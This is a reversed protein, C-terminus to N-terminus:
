DPLSSRLSSQLRSSIMARYLWSAIAQLLSPPVLQRMEGPEEFTVAGMPPRETRSAPLWCSSATAFTVQPAGQAAGTLAREARLDSGKLLAM